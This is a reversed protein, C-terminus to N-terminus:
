RVTSVCEVCKVIIISNIKTLKIMSQDKNSFCNMDAGLKDTTLKEDIHYGLGAEKLKKIM